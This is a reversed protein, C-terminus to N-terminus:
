HGMASLKYFILVQAAYKFMYGYSDTKTVHQAFDVLREFSEGGSFAADLKHQSHLRSLVVTAATAATTSICLQDKSRIFALTQGIHANGVVVSGYDPLIYGAPTEVVDVCFLKALTRVPHKAYDATNQEAVFARLEADALNLTQM